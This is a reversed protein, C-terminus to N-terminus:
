IVTMGGGTPSVVPTPEPPAIAKTGDWEWGIDFRDHYEVLTYGEPPDWPTVGDWVINNVIKGDKILLHAM